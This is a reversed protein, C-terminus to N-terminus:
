RGWPHGHWFYYWQGLTTNGTPAMTLGADQWADVGALVGYVLGSANLGRLQLPTFYRELMEQNIIPEGAIQCSFGLELLKEHFRIGSIGQQLSTAFPGLGVGNPACVGLGTVVVRRDM